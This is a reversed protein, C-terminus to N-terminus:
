QSLGIATPPPPTSADAPTNAGAESHETGLEGLLRLLKPVPVLLRRGLKLTPIEGRDAARYASDRGLGLVEGAQPITITARGRIDELTLPGRVAAESLRESTM